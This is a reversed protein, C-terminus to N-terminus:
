GEIVVKHVVAGHPTRLRLLYLGPAIRAGSESRLDWEFGHVGAGLPRSIISRVLRGRIDYAALTVDASVPMEIKGALRTGRCPIQTTFWMSPSSAAGAAAAGEPGDYYGTLALLYTGAEATKCDGPPFDLVLEEGPALRYPFGAALALPASGAPSRFEARNAAAAQSPQVATPEPHVGVFDIPHDSHWRLTLTVPGDGTGAVIARVSRASVLQRPVVTMSPLTDSGSIFVGRDGLTLEIGKGTGGSPQGSGGGPPPKEGVVVDILIERRVKIGPLTVTAETGKRGWFVNGDQRGIEDLIGKGDQTAGVPALAAGAEFLKGDTTAVIGGGACLPTVTAGYLYTTDPELSRVKLRLRGKDDTDWGRLILHDSDSAAEHGGRGLVSNEDQFGGDRWAYVHPCPNGCSAIEFDVQCSCPTATVWTTDDWAQMDARVVIRCSDEPPASVTWEYARTEASVSDLTTYSSGNDRSLRVFQKRVRQDTRPCLKWRIVVNETVCLTAAPDPVIVRFDSTDCDTDQWVMWQAPDASYKTTCPEAKHSHGYILHARGCADCVLGTAGYTTTDDASTLTDQVTWHVQNDADRFFGKFYILNYTNYRNSQLDGGSAALLEPPLIPTCDPKHAAGRFALHVVSDAYSTAHIGPHAGPAETYDQDELVLVPDSLTDGSPSYVRYWIGPVDDYVARYFTIPTDGSVICSSTGIYSTHNSDITSVQQINKWIGQNTLMRSMAADYALSAPHGPCGSCIYTDHWFFHVNDDRDVLIGSQAQAWHCSTDCCSSDCCPDSWYDRPCCYCSDTDQGGQNEFSVLSADDSWMSDVFEGTSDNEYLWPSRLCHKGALDEWGAWGRMRYFPTGFHKSNAEPTQDCRSDCWAVHQNGDGDVAMGPSKSRRNWVNVADELSIWPPEGDTKYMRAIGLRIQRFDQSTDDKATWALHLENYSDKTTVWAAPGWEAFIEGAQGYDLPLHYIVTSDLGSTVIAVNVSDHYVVGACNICPSLRGTKHVVYVLGSSDSVAGSITAGRGADWLQRPTTFNAQDSTAPGAFGILMAGGLLMIAVVRGINASLFRRRHM